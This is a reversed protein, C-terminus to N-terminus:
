NTLSSWQSVEFRFVSSVRRDKLWIEIESLVSSHITDIKSDWLTAKLTEDFVINWNKSHFTHSTSVLSPKLQDFSWMAQDHDSSHTM